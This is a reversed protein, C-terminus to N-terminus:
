TVMELRVELGRDATREVVVIDGASAASSELFDRVAARNRFIMKHGDVDTEVTQGPEFRVTFSQGPDDKNKGGIGGSPILSRCDRLSFHHNRINAATLAIRSAHKKM